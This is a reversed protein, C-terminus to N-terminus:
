LPAGVRSHGCSARARQQAHGAVLVAGVDGTYRPHPVVAVTVEGASAAAAGASTRGISHEWLPRLEHDFALVTRDETVAVVIQRRRGSADASSRLMGTCLAMSRRGAALGTHTRLSVSRLVPLRRWSALGLVGDGVSEPRAADEVASLLLLRGDTTAMVVEPTGDGDLDAVVPPSMSIHADVFAARPDDSSAAIFSPRLMVGGSNTLSLIVCALAVLLVFVDAVHPLPGMKVSSILVCFGGEEDWMVCVLSPM